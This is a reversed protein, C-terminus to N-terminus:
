FAIRNKQLFILFIKFFTNVNENFMVIFSVIFLTKYIIGMISKERIYM